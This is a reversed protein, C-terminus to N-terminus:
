PSSAAEFMTPMGVGYSRGGYKKVSWNSNPMSNTPWRSGRTVYSVTM